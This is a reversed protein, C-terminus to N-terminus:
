PTSQGFHHEDISSQYPTRRLPTEAGEKAFQTNSLEKVRYAWEELAERKEDLYAHRNYTAAVGSVIGTKHNLVAEIIHPQVGMMAMNTAVTRRIDHFRWDEADTGVALDLRQKLRGFGSIPTTGNTTLVLDSGLFRPTSKLIDLALPALPVTHSTANKARKAPITWTGTNFDIESWRMGAVEGRRQGTLILLKTFQEFPYGEAEAGSWCALLEVNTLVRDRANEKTPPKLGALPSVEITGRDVCWSMLKKIAALARNARMPAGCAIIKDLVQVVDGRRIENIPKTNLSSFKTLIRESGKWDRNRPRAYLEIFQPIIEGLTSVREVEVADVDYTGLQVDKLITRAKERADSLPVIPYAGIKIRRMRQNVRTSLYWVKRGASSVRIHLGPLLADRVEYRKGKSPPLADLTKTTLKKQM